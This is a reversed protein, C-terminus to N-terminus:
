RSPGGWRPTRRPGSSDGLGVRSARPPWAAALDLRVSSSAGRRRSAWRTESEDPRPSARRRWGPRACWRRRARAPPGRGRNPPGPRRLRASAGRPWSCTFFTEAARMSGKSARKSSRMAWAWRQVRERSSCALAASLAELPRCVAAVSARPRLGMLGVGEEVAGGLAEGLGAHLLAAQLKLHLGRHVVDGDVALRRQLGRRARGGSSSRAGKSSSSKLILRRM